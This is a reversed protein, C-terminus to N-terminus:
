LERVVVRTGRVAVVQVSAGQDILADETIVEVRKGNIFAAGSPRLQNIAVGSCHLLEPKAACMAGVSPRRIFLRVLRNKPLSKQRCYTTILTMVLVAGLFLNGTRFGFNHYGLIVAGLWCLCAVIVTVRRSLLAGLFLLTAGLALLSFILTMPNM